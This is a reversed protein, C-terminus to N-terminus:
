VKIYSYLNDVSDMVSYNPLNFATEGTPVTGGTVTGALNVGDFKNVTGDYLASYNTLGVNDLQMHIIKNVAKFGDWMGAVYIHNKVVFINGNSLSTPLQKNMVTFASLNGSADIDASLMMNSYNGNCYGGILYAKNGMVVASTDGLTVPLATDASWAGILGTSAIPASYVTNLWSTGNYGGILYVKNKTYIVKHGSVSIPLATGTSFAGLGGTASITSVYVTNAPVGATWGGVVYLTNKTIFAQHGSRAAPLNAISTFAGLNGNVDITASYVNSVETTGNYGGILYVTNETVIVQTDCLAAPLTGYSAFAGLTGDANVTASYITNVATQGNYGGIIFVKNKTVVVGSLYLNTPLLSNLYHITGIDNVVTSFDCQNEWYKGAGFTGYSTYGMAVNIYNDSTANTKGYKYGIVSYLAAYSTPSVAQGNCLLFGAPVTSSAIRLISGSKIHNIADVYQKTSAHLNATPDAALTIAGTMTGGALNLKADLQTQVNTTVGNLRNVETASVTVADLFTNQATTLHLAVDTAHTSVKSDVYQKPAAELANVPDAPLVLAGTMTDGAKSVKLGDKTDVYQKTAAHLAVTPDASLTLAGTLTGGAKALKSDIQTQVASTVGSLQNVETASVTVADLFTNQATTLHRGDDNAHTSVTSDVYQKPAAELAETPNGVLTLAGTMTDGTKSVKLADQTDTYQKTAAHLNNTPGSALTLSGTLTGGSLPLKSNIQTQVNGTIGELHNIETHTATLNNFFTREAPKLHLSTNSAHTGISSDVYQKTSAELDLVPDAHLTLTGTITGGTKNLKENLGEDVYHKNTLHYALSPPTSLVVQGNIVGGDNSWGGSAYGGNSMLRIKM